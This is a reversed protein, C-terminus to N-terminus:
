NKLNHAIHTNYNSIQWNTVDNIQLNVRAKIDLRKVIHCFLWSFFQIDHSHFSSKLHFLFCIKKSQSLGVKSYFRKKKWFITKQMLLSHILYVPNRCIYSISKLIKQFIKTLNLPVWNWLTENFLVAGCGM